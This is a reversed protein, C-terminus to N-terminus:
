QKILKALFCMKIIKLIFITVRTFLSIAYIHLSIVCQLVCIYSFFNFNYMRM